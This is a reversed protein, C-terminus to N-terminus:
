VSGSARRVVVSDDPWEATFYVEGAFDDAGPLDPRNPCRSAAPRLSWSAHRAGLQRRRDRGALLRKGRGARVRRRARRLLLSRLPRLAPCRAAPLRPDGAPDRVARELDVGAPAADDFSFSYDVSEVDCRAGPYRNWYWTGGVDTGAEFGHVSLGAQQARYMAYMGAFGAGIVVVDYSGESSVREAGPERTPSPVHTPANM